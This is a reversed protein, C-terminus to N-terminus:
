TIVLRLRFDPSTAPFDTRTHAGRSEERVTAAAVLGGAVAALNRLECGAPTDSVIPPLRHLEAGATALSQGDRLVGALETMMRQQAERV